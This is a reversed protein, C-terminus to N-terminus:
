FRTERLLKGRFAWIQAQVFRPGELSWVRRAGTQTQSLSLSLPEDASTKSPSSAWLLDGALTALGAWHSGNLPWTVGLQLGQIAIKAVIPNNAVM